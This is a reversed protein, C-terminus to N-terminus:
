DLVARAADRETQCETSFIHRESATLLASLAARLREIESNKSAITRAAAEGDDTGYSYLRDM